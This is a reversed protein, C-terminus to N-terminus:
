HYYEAELVDTNLMLRQLSVQSDQQQLSARIERQSSTMYDLGGYIYLMRQPM